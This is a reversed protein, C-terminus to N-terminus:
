DAAPEAEGEALDVGRVHPVSKWVWILNFLCLAGTIPFVARFGMGAAIAGGVLPGLFNGMQMFSTSVGFARGQFGGPASVAILANASAVVGGVFCGQLFRFALLEWWNMAVGQLTYAVAVGALCIMLVKKYGLRDGRRGLFPSALVDAVGVISFVAGSLFELMAAPVKLTELYLAIIPESNMVSFQQVLVVLMMALLVPNALVQRFNQISSTRQERAVPTFHEKMFLFAIAASIFCAIGTLFFIPRHGMFSALVGGLFPGLITGATNATQVMGLMYGTRERPTITTMYAIAAPMFGVTTGQLLRLVLLQWPQTALGMLSVVIGMGVGARIMMPRRGFRDAVSGWFPLSIAATIFNASFILGTWLEVQSGRAGMEKVYLPLFPMILSFGANMVFVASWILWLQREWNQRTEM